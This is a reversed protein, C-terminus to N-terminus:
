ARAGDPASLLDGTAVVPQKGGSAAAVRERITAALAEPDDAGIVVEAFRVREPGTGDLTLRVVRDRRHVALFLWRGDSRFTGVLREGAALGGLRLLMPRGRPVAGVQVSRVLRFPVDVSRRLSAVAAMGRLDIHLADDSFRIHPTANM